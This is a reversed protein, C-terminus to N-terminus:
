KYSTMSIFNESKGCTELLKALTKDMEFLAQYRKIKISALYLNADAVDTSTSLGEAFAKDRARVLEEAFRLSEELSVYQERQKEIETYQKKVLTQVDKEAQATILEVSECMAKAQAIKNKDQLGNFLNWQLGVGVVWNDPETLPLNESWLYKKGVVAVDPLYAAQGAKVAQTAQQAKLKAQVILPYNEKAQQQYYELPQLPAVEFLETTLVTLPQEATGIVGYLATQALQIDKEAAMVERQADTVSKKAQMTEVSAIMGNKELKQANEYHHEATKLSQQRVELAKKALQLQFYREALESILAYETKKAEVTAIESNLTSVRNGVRVKGGAFLVWKADVSLKWIDQEQFKYRWDQEFLPQLRTGLGNALAQLPPLPIQAMQQLVGGVQTQIPAKYDNFSLYLPDALHMYSANVSLQPLYLGRMSKRNYQAAENQKEIGKLKQNGERMQSLAEEFSLSQAQLSATFALVLLAQLFYKKM